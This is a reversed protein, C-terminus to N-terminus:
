KTEVELWQMIEKAIEIYTTVKQKTLNKSVEEKYSPYRSRIYYPNLGGFLITKKSDYYPTDELIKYLRILDHTYPPEESKHYIILAKISKEVCQQCHFCAQLYIGNSLSLIAVRLDDEALTKWKSLLEINKKNEM